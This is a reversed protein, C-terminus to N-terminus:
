VQTPLMITSLIFFFIISRGPYSFKALSYGALSCLLLPALTQVLSIVVSNFFYRAFNKQFPLIYNEWRFESPWWRMPVAFIEPEPKLSGLVAVVFPLLMVVSLALLLLYLAGYGVMRRLRDATLGERVPPAQDLTRLNITM